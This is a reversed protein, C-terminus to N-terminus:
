SSKHMNNMDDIMKAVVNTLQPIIEKDFMSEM